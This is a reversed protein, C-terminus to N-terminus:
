QQKQEGKNIWDRTWPVTKSPWARIKCSQWAL